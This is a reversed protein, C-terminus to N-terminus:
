VCKRFLEPRSFFFYFLLVVSTPSSPPINFIATRTMKVSESHLTEKQSHKTPTRCANSIYIQNLIANKKKKESLLRGRCEFANLFSFLLPKKSTVYGLVFCWRKSHTWIVCKLTKRGGGWSTMRHKTQDSCGREGPKKTSNQCCSLRAGDLEWQQGARPHLAM